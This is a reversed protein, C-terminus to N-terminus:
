FRTETIAVHWVRTLLADTGGVGMFGYGVMTFGPVLERLTAVGDAYFGWLQGLVCQRSLAIDLEALDIEDRWGRPGHEDLLDMGRQVAEVTAVSAMTDRLAKEQWDM